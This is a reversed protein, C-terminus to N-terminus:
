IYRQIAVAVLSGDSTACLDTVAPLIEEQRQDSDLLGAKM